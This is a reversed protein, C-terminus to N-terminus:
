QEAYQLMLPGVETELSEEGIQLERQHEFYRYGFEKVDVAARSGFDRAYSNKEICCCEAM